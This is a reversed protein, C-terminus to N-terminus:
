DGSILALMGYQIVVNRNFLEKLSDYGQKSLEIVEFCGLYHNYDNYFISENTGFYVEISRAQRNAYSNPRGGPDPLPTDALDDFFGKVKAKHAEWKEETWVIFGEIDFEDAYNTSFKILLQKPNM